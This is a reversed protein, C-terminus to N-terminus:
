GDITRLETLINNFRELSLEKNQIDSELKEIEKTYKDFINEGIKQEKLKTILSSIYQKVDTRVRSQLENVYNSADDM